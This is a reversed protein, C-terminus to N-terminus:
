ESMDSEAPFVRELLIRNRFVGNKEAKEMRLRTLEEESIGSAAALASVVELIDCLERPSDDMLYEETEERLKRKLHMLYEADSLIRTVPTEGQKEIIEPIRDRVLKNYRRAKRKETECLNYEFLDFWTLWPIGLGLDVTQVYHFGCKLYLAIAPKNDSSVDLRVAKMGLQAAYQISFDMLSRGINMKKYDPHVALSHIVIIEENAAEIGWDAGAYAEEPIHNLIVTGAIKGRTRLVFLTQEQVGQEATDRVPYVAKKWGPYDTGSNLYVNLDNYLQELEDVDKETGKEIHFLESNQM